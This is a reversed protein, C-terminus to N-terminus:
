PAPQVSFPKFGDTDITLHQTGRQLVLTQRPLIPEPGLILTRADPPAVFRATTGESLWTKPGRLDANDTHPVWHAVFEFGQPRPQWHIPSGTARSLHRAAELLTALRVAERELATTESGRLSLTVGASALGVIALVVLLELLTFGRQHTV